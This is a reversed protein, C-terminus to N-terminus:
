PDTYHKHAAQLRKWDEKLELITPRVGLTETPQSHGPIYRCAKKFVPLIVDIADQLRGANIRELNQMSVNPQYRKTV